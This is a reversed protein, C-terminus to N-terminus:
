EETVPIEVLMRQLNAKAELLQAKSSGKRVYFDCRPCAMRHPRQEFLTYTCYGHGVDFYQWPSGSASAGSRV